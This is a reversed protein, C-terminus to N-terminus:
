EAAKLTELVSRALALAEPKTSVARELEARRVSTLVAGLLRGGALDLEAILDDGTLLPPEGDENAAWARATVYNLFTVHRRFNERTYGPGRTAMGDSLNVLMLPLVHGDLDSVFKRVAKDSAPGNKILEGPRLHYRIMRAVFDTAAPGFGLAPLRERMLEAGRPGHRPFRLRGEEFIATAPKAVDHLLASLRILALLPVDEIGRELTEDLDIWALAERLERNGDGPGLAADLAAVAAMNHGLVDYYHLEPQVFGRGAELEPVLSTLEGTADLARLATSAETALLADLLRAPLNM